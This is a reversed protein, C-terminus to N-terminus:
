NPVPIREAYDVVWIEVPRRARQLKLGLQEQIATFLSAAASDDARVDDPRWALTFDFTGTLGTSDIVPVGLKFVRGSLRNALGVMSLAKGSVRGPGFSFSDEKDSAPSLKPGGRAVLLVYVNLERTERHIKLRFREALLARVMRTIQERSAEPSTKASVDFRVSDLWVPGQLAYDQGEGIDYGFAICERLSVNEFTVQGHSRSLSSQQRGSTNIKVSAVEFEQAVAASLLAVAIPIALRM